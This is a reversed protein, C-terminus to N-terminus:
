RARYNLSRDVRRLMGAIAVRGAQVVRILSYRGRDKRYLRVPALAYALRHPAREGPFIEAIRIRYAQREPEGKSFLAGIEAALEPPVVEDADLNLLWPHRCQDEGFRKQLGYGSWPNHIVRAGVEAAAEQTGDTSGSDIVVLDDTLDRVARLTEPLRDAENKAIIFISLPPM